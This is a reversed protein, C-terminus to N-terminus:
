SSNRHMMTSCASWPSSVDIVMRSKIAESGLSAPRARLSIASMSKDTPNEFSFCASGTALKDPPHFIFSSSARAMNIPASMRSRHTKTRVEMVPASLKSVVGPVLRSVVQVDLGNGPELLVQAVEGLDGAQDDRVVRAEQVVNARVDYTIAM